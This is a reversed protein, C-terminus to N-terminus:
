ASALFDELTSSANCVPPNNVLDGSLAANLAQAAAEKLRAATLGRDSGPFFKINVLERGEAFLLSHLTDNTAEM